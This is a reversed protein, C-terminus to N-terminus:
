EIEAVTGNGGEAVLVKGSGQWAVHYPDGLLKVERVVSGDAPKILVLGPWTRDAVALLSGDPSYAVDIPSRYAPRDGSSIQALAPRGVALAALLTLIFRHAQPGRYM